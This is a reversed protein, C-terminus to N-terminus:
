RFRPNRSVSSSGCWLKPTSRTPWTYSSSSVAPGSGPSHGPRQEQSRVVFGAAAVVGAPVTAIVNVPASHSGVNRGDSTIRARFTHTGPSGVVWAFAFTSDNRM